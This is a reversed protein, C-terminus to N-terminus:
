FLQGAAILKIELLQFSARGYMTRKIEKLKNNLGEILGNSWKHIVANRVAEIDLRLSRALTQFCSLQSNEYKEIWNDLLTDNNSMISEKLSIHATQIDTLRKSQSVLKDTMVRKSDAVGTGKNVGYGPNGVYIHVLPLNIENGSKSMKSNYQIANNSKYNPYNKHFWVIFASYSSKLGKLKAEKYIKKIYYGEKMAREYDRLYAVYSNSSSSSKQSIAEMKDYRNGTEKNIGVIKSAARISTGNARLEKFKKFNNFRKADAVSAMEEVTNISGSNDTETLLNNESVNVDQCGRIEEQILKRDKRIQEQLKESSNKIIHFRDAIQNSLPLAKRIAHAYASARDRTVITVNTYKKLAAEVKSSDKSPIIELVNHTDLDVVITGYTCGKRFAFDDIGIHKISAYDISYEVSKLVRLCTSSSINFGITNLIKAGGNSSVKSLIKTIWTRMDITMRKYRQCFGEIQECFVKCNCKKNACRFKRNHLICTVSKNHLPMESIRRTYHSHISRSKRGCNPCIARKAISEVNLIIENTTQETVRYALNKYNLVSNLDIKCHRTYRTKLGKNM